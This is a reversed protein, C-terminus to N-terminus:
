KKPKNTSYEGAKQGIKALEDLADRRKKDQDRKRFIKDYNDEFEKRTVDMPRPKDGKGAM